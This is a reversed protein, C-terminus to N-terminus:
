LKVSHNAGYFKIIKDTGLKQALAKTSEFDSGSGIIHFTTDMRDKLRAIASILCKMDQAKGINGIYLFDFHNDPKKSFDMDLMDASAFQPLYSMRNKSIGNIKELYEFFPKSSVAIHDCQSYAKKSIAHIMRYPLTNEKFGM